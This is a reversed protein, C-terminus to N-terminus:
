NWNECRRQVIEQLADDMARTNSGDYRTKERLKGESLVFHMLDRSRDFDALALDEKGQICFVKGRSAYAFQRQEEDYSSKDSIVGTCADLRERLSVDSVTCAILAEQQAYIPSYYMINLLLCAAFIIPKSM